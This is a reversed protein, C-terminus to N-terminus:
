AAEADLAGARAMQQAAAPGAQRPQVQAPPSAAGERGGLCLWALLSSLPRGRQAQQAQQAADAPLDYIPCACARASCQRWAEGCLYCFQQGCRCVMHNCGSAKEILHRCQPSTAANSRLVLAM